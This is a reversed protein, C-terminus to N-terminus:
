PTPLSVDVRFFRAKKQPTGDLWWPYDIEIVEYTADEAVTTPNLGAVWSPAPVTDSSQWDNLQSSFQLAYLAGGDKRQVYRAKFEVGNVSYVPDSITPTGGTFTPPTGPTVTLPGGSGSDTPDTGFAFELLNSLGDTDFDLTPDSVDDPQYSDAWTDYPSGGGTTVSLHVNDFFVGREQGSSDIRLAIPEGETGSTFASAPITFTFSTNPDDQYSSGVLDASLPIATKEPGTMNEGPAWLITGDQQRLSPRIYRQKDGNWSQPSANLTLTFVDDSAWNHDIDIEIEASTYEFQIAYNDGPVALDTDTRVGDGTAKQTKVNASQFLQWDGLDPNNQNDSFLPDQFRTIYLTGAPETPTTASQQTSASGENLAPSTDRAMVEFTYATDPDLDKQTWAPSNLWGSDTGNTVNIFKYQVGSPDSVTNAKMHISRYDAVEPLVNWTPAAPPTLDEPATTASEAASTGSENQNPSKDRTKVTYTYTTDFDLDTEAWERSDQWGSNTGRTTNEFYYEVGYLDGPDRVSNARMSIDKFNSVTPVIDWTPTAPPTNDAPLPGQVLTVKNIYLGRQGSSDIRLQLQEGPTGATFTSADIEWFWILESTYDSLSGMYSDYLPVATEPGQATSWIVTSDSSQRLEPRIYRQNQGSWSMPSAEVRLYYVDTAGWNHSTDYDLESSTQEQQIVQNRGHSDTVSSDSPVDGQNVDNRAKAGGGFSWGPFDTGTVQTGDSIIPDTQWDEDVLTTQGSAIALLLSAFAALAPIRPFRAKM